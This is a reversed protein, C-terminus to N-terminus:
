KSIICGDDDYEIHEVELMVPIPLPKHTLIDGYHNVMVSQEISAPQSDDEESARLSYLYLGKPLIKRTYFNIRCCTFFTGVESEGEYGIHNLDMDWERALRTLAQNDKIFRYDLGLFNFYAEQIETLQNVFVVIDRLHLEKVKHYPTNIKGRETDPWDMDWLPTVKLLDDVQENVYFMAYVKRGNYNPNIAAIVLAREINQFTNM